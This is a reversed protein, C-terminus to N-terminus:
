IANDKLHGIIESANAMKTIEWWRTLGLGAFMEDLVQEKTGKIKGQYKEIDALIRAKYTQVKQFTNWYKNIYQNRLKRAYAIQKESVGVIVPMQMEEAYKDARENDAQEQAQLSKRYCDKCLGTKKLWEIKRERDVHKGYLKVTDEHGCSMQILYQAM